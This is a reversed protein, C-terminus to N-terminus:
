LLVVDGKKHGPIAEGQTDSIPGKRPDEEGSARKQSSKYSVQLHILILNRLLV